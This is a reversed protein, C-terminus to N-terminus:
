PRWRVVGRVPRHDSQGLNDLAAVAVGDLRRKRVIWDIARDGHSPVAQVQAVEWFPRAVADGPQANFDGMVVTRGGRGEWWRLLNDRQLRWLDLAAGGLHKSPVFHVVGFTWVSGDSRNRLRAWVVFKARHLTPGAAEPQIRTEPSLPFAGRDVERWVSPDWTLLQGVPQDDGDDPPNPRHVEWGQNRIYGAIWGAEQLGIVTARRSLNGWLERDRADVGPSPGYRAPWNFTIAAVRLATGIPPETGADEDIPEGADLAVGGADPGLDGGADLTSVPGADLGVAGADLGPVTDADVGAADEPPSSADPEGTPAAGCGCLLSLLCCRFYVVVGRVRMGACSAM